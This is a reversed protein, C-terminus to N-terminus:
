PIVPCELLFPQDVRHVDAMLIFVHYDLVKEDLDREMGRLLPFGYEKM